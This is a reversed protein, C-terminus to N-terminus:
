SLFLDPKNKRDGIRNDRQFVQFRFRTSKVESLEMVM